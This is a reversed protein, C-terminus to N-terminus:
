FRVTLLTVSRSKVKQILRKSLVDSLGFYPSLGFILSFHLWNKWKSEAIVLDLTQDRRDNLGFNILIERM